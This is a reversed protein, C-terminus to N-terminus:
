TTCVLSHLQHKFYDKCSLSSLTSLPASLSATADADMCKRLQKLVFNGSLLIFQYKGTNSNRIACGSRTQSGFYAIRPAGEFSIDGRCFSNIERARLRAHFSFAVSLATSTDRKHHFVSSVAEVFRKSVSPPLISPQM